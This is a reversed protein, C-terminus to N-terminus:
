SPHVLLMHGRDETGRRRTASMAGGELLPSDSERKLRQALGFTAGVPPAHAAHRTCACTCLLQLAYMGGALTDAIELTTMM